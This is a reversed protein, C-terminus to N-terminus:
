PARVAPSKAGDCGTMNALELDADGQRSVDIRLPYVSRDFVADQRHVGPYPAAITAGITVQGLQPLFVPEAGGIVAHRV